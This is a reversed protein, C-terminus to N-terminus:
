HKLVGQIIDNAKDLAAKADALVDDLGKGLNEGRGNDAWEELAVATKELEHAAVSISVDLVHGTKQAFGAHWIRVVKWTAVAVGLLAVLHFFGHCHCKNKVM